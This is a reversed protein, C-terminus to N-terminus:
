SWPARRTSVSVPPPATRELIITFTIRGSKFASLSMSSRFELYPYLNLGGLTTHTSSYHKPYVENYRLPLRGGWVTGDFLKLDVSFTGTIVDVSNVDQQEPGNLMDALDRLYQAEAPQSLSVAVVAAMLGPIFAAFSKGEARLMRAEEKGTSM